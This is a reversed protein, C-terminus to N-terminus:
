TKRDVLIVSFCTIKVLNYIYLSVLYLFDTNVRIKMVM